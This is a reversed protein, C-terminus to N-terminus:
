AKALLRGSQKELTMLRDAPSQANPRMHDDRATITLWTQRHWGVQRKAGPSQLLVMTPRAWRAAQQKNSFQSRLVAPSRPREDRTNLGARFMMNTETDKARPRAAANTNGHLVYYECPKTRALPTRLCVEPHTVVLHLHKSVTAIQAREPMAPRPDHGPSRPARLRLRLTGEGGAFGRLIGSRRGIMM